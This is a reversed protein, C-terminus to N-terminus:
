GGVTGVTIAVGNSTIAQFANPASLDFALSQSFLQFGALSPTNPIALTFGVTGAGVLTTSFETSAFSRCGPMGIVGLDIGPNIQTM